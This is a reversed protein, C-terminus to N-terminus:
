TNGNVHFCSMSVSSYQFSPACVSGILANNLGIECNGLETCSNLASSYSGSLSTM